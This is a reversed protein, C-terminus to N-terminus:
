IHRLKGRFNRLIPPERIKSCREGYGPGTWNSKKVATGLPKASSREITARWRTSDNFASGSPPEVLACGPATACCSSIVEPQASPRGHHFFSNFFLHCFKFFHNPCDNWDSQFKLLPQLLVWHVIFTNSMVPLHAAVQLVPCCMRLILQHCLWLPMKNRAGYSIGTIHLPDTFWTEMLQWFGYEWMNKRQM